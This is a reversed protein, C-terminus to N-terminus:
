RRARIADVISQLADGGLNVREAENWGCTKALMEGAKLQDPRMVRRGLFVSSLRSVYDGRQIALIAENEARLESIRAVTADKGMLRPGNVDADKGAYGAERYAATASAGAAVIQAFKEHRVNKLAPM